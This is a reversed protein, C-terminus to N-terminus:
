FGAPKPEELSNTEYRVSGYGGGTVKDSLAVGGSRVGPTQPTPRPPPNQAPAQTPDDASDNGTPQKTSPDPPLTNGTAQSNSPEGTVTSSQAHSDSVIGLVVLLVSAPFLRSM